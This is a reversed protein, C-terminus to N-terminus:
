KVEINVGEDPETKVLRVTLVGNELTTQSNKTTVPTPLKVTRSFKYSRAEQILYENNKAEVSRKGSISLINSKLNLSLDDKRFGAVDVKVEYFGDLSKLTVPHRLLYTYENNFTLEDWLWKCDQSHLFLDMLDFKARRNSSGCTSDRDKNTM